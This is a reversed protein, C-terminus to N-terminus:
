FQSNGRPVADTILKETLHYCVSEAFNKDSLQVSHWGPGFIFFSIPVQYDHVRLELCRTELDNTLNEFMM